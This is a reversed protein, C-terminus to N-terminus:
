TKSKQIIVEIGETNVGYKEELWEKVQWINRYTQPKGHKNVFVHPSGDIDILLYCERDHRKIALSQYVGSKLAEIFRIHNSDIMNICSVDCEAAQGSYHM